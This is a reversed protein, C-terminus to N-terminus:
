IFTLIHLKIDTHRQYYNCIGFIFPNVVTRYISHISHTNQNSIIISGNKYYSSVESDVTAM